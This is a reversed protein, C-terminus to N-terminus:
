ATTTAFALADRGTLELAGAAAPVVGSEGGRLVLEGAATAAELRGHVCTIATLRATAAVDLRGTGAWREVVFWPWDVVRERTMGTQGAGALALPASRCTAVFEAGRPADWRTVELSRRLHLERGTGNPDRRGSADYRRNWDWFRYTVGRRGPRVLQPEVLTVGAGIAHPTGAAIVFADGPSVPVFQMLEDLAGSGAICGEVAAQDVGEAFGLFLGAGPDAELVIWAEPKGSEGEGLAPDGDAPHVQVSLHDAADLLKVLLPTQGYRAADQAGRWAAPSRRVLEALM